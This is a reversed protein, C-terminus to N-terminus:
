PCVSVAISTATPAPTTYGLTIATDTAASGVKFANCNSSGDYTYSQDLSLIANSLETYEANLGNSLASFGVVLGLGVITALLLYELAVNGAEDNWMKAFM